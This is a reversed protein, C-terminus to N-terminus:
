LNDFYLVMENPKNGAKESPELTHINKWKKPKWKYITDHHDFYKHVDTKREHAIKFILVLHTDIHVRNFGQLPSHLFKYVHRPSTRMEHVKKNIMELQRPNKRALKELIKDLEEKIELEYM